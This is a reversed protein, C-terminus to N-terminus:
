ANLIQVLLEAAIEEKRDFPLEKVPQAGKFDRIERMDGRTLGYTFNKDECTAFVPHYMGTAADYAEGETLQWPTRSVEELSQLTEVLEDILKADDPMDFEIRAGKSVNGRSSIIHLTDDKIAFGTAKIGQPISIFKM